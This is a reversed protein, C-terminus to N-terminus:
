KNKFPEIIFSTDEKFVILRNNNDEIDIIVFYETSLSQKLMGTFIIKNDKKIDVKKNLLKEM